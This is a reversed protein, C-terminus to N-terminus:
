DGPAPEVQEAVPPAPQAPPKQEEFQEPHREEWRKWLAVIVEQIVGAIPVAFFGGLVGFLQGGALLAFLAVIPHLGISQSYIRPALIQGLVIQQLVITFVVVILVTVWGQPIAALITLAGSIYGGIMPIFFLLFFLLALLAAYPVHLLTLVIGSSVAGIGSLLLLGRFYGGVSRDLTHLLFNINERQELPSRKSLWRVIRPGDLIFYISLTIIIIFTILNNLLASLFPIIGTIFGQLQSLIQNRYMDIQQQSIGFRGLLDIIPQLQRNGQPGFLSQLAQVSSASQRILSDAVFYLIGGLVVVVVLYAVTIALAAPMFRRLLQTFPYIMYALLASILLVLLANSIRSIAYLGFGTIVIFAIVTLAIILRSTWRSRSSAPPSAERTSTMNASM